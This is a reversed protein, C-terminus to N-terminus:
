AQRLKAPLGGAWARIAEWDRFDGESAKIVNKMLYRLLFPLRQYIVAGAFMAQEAPQVLDRVPQLYGEAERRKEETDESMALCVGFYALPVRGLAARHKEVFRTAEPLWRGMRIASGVVVAQYASVDKVDKVPRVDVAAGAECVAKGIAEAVEGTSGCRTAYAVLMKEMQEGECSSQVLDVPLQRTGLATVGGCSLVAIGAAGGALTLFRRRSIKNEM